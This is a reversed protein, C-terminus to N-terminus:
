SKAKLRPRGEIWEVDRLDYIGSFQFQGGADLDLILAAVQAPNALRGETRLKLFRSRAPFDTDSADRILTQMNTDVVGPAVASVVVGDPRHKQEMAVCRTIMNLAAKAACYLSWGAYPHAAAGSTVNIIRRPIPWAGSARIFWSMLLVPAILNVHMSDVMQAPTYNELSGIPALVGANNILVIDRCAADQADHMLRDMVAGMQDPDRLDCTYNRRDHTQMEPARSICFASHGRRVIEEALAKGIGRTTGTVIYATQDNIISM